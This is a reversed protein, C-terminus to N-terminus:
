GRISTQCAALVGLVFYEEGEVVGVILADGFSGGHMNAITNIIEVREDLIMFVFMSLVRCVTPMLSLVIVLVFFYSALTLLHRVFKPPPADIRWM